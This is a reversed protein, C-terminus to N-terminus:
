YICDYPGIFMVRNYHYDYYAGCELGNSKIFNNLTNRINLYSQYYEYQLDHPKWKTVQNSLKDFQIKNIKFIKQRFISNRIYGPYLLKISFMLDFKYEQHIDRYYQITEMDKVMSMIQIIIDRFGNLNNLLLLSIQTYRGVSKELKKRQEQLKQQRIKKLHRRGM